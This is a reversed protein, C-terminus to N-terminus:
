DELSLIRTLDHILELESKSMGNDVCAIRNISDLVFDRSLGDNVELKLAYLFGPRLQNLRSFIYSVEEVFRPDNCFQRVQQPLNHEGYNSYFEQVERAHEKLGDELFHDVNYIMLSPFIYILSSFQDVTIDTVKEKSYEQFLETTSKNM